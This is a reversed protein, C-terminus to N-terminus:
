SPLRKKILNELKKIRGRDSGANSSEVDNDGGTSGISKRGHDRSSGGVGGPANTGGGGGGGGDRSPGSTISSMTASKFLEVLQIQDIRKLGKMDLIKQYDILPIDPLLKLVQEIFTMAPNIPAMVVKIIMEARTMGKVVVKTYSTPAKRNVTSAISPLDLLVTKLSHTDLLLQECGLINHTNDSSANTLRCKFLTNIYKPIFSNVFKLCFQTYYKRSASLNDRIIPVTHKFHSIISNVFSSQDGVNNITQWQIKNIVHLAPECGNELDQVLLQICNSIIKHFVDKEESLDIKDAFSADIKEALKDELQQVTELCYEASTLICCIKILEDKTFRPTEGEKLFNHIVQGAANSLNQLNERTLLSMSTGISSQVTTIKPISAELVKVAYERLYKKFIMALDHLPKGNSLQTCQVMCKKYFVFLDACSPFVTSKAELPNFPQKSAQVFREILESLNRDISETYIDLHTKFCVGILDMFDSRKEESTVGENLSQPASVDDRSEDASAMQKTEFTSRGGSNLTVGTFRKALLQEFAQTKSIAFLLLKVDIENRRRAMIKTLEDRTLICFQVTVRESVEWDVPFIRGFKEEFDLLHRKLWAYRKDIKDLWAIDQNEHFLQVYEELQLAIFWKLLDRRVKPDLVSVVKCADTLQALSMKASGTSSPSFTNHFDETIQGALQQQIQHVKDSLNRIQPIDIYQQFHQNVETIAQLPNLIEGYLRKEILKTLSDIGGVLMHLHNLATIATTLNRKASDLQKIDRTIEKVMDETKEARTKIETIQAFLQNIVKQAGELAIRGDQSTNTQGRIVSRINDDIVSVECEMKSIVDDINSLSQENPFMQNIYDISNFDSSDLPDTSQLVQEIANQVEDSFVIKGLRTEDSAGLPEEM